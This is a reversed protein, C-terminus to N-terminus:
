RREVSVARRTFTPNTCQWIFRLRIYSKDCRRADAHILTCTCSYRIKLPRRRAGIQHLIFPSQSPWELSMIAFGGTAIMLERRSLEISKM